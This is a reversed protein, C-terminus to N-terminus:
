APTPAAAAAAPVEGFFGSSLAIFPGADDSGEGDKSLQPKPAELPVAEDGPKTQADAAEFRVESKCRRCTVIVAQGGGKRQYLEESMTYRASCKPCTVSLM